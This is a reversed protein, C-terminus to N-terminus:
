NGKMKKRLIELFSVKSLKLLKTTDKAKEIRIRDGTHVEINRDGDFSVGAEEIMGDKGPGIEIEIVDDASLVISSTNLAHSCIPTMVIMSATPAM